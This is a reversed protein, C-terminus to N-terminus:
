SNRDGGLLGGLVNGGLGDGQLRELIFGEGGFLGVGLRKTFAIEIEASQAACGKAQIRSSRWCICTM